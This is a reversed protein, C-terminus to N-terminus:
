SQLLARLQAKLVRGEEHFYAREARWDPFRQEVEHWFAASHNPQALHCLEHVLVYKFASPRALVLSLDLAMSGDPSLSGWQSSMLKFRIRGPARPLGALHRPMWRGIDARGQAEYFERLARSLMAASAREPWQLHLGDDELQLRTYRGPQWHLPVAQGRLPLTATIGPQLPQVSDPVASRALQEHLWDRHLELFRDGAILSARLPLTLRAGREDVSLRIRRARPDRVRQVVIPASGDEAPVLVTDREVSRTPKAILRRLLM